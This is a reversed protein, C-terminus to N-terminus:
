LLAILFLIICSSFFVLKAAVRHGRSIDKTLLGAGLGYRTKNAREIVEDETAFTLVSMVPGFIEERTICMEDNCNIMVTPEMYFGNEFGKPHLQAGGTAIVAGEGVGMQIYNLVKKLHGSSILAGMTTNTSMPDGVVYDKAKNVVAEVFRDHISQHVFVRTANSCVEGATYFNADCATQVALEFDADDFVIFFFM